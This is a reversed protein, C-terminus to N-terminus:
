SSAAIPPLTRTTERIKKSSFVMNLIGIIHAAAKATQPKEGTACALLKVNPTPRPLARAWRRDIPRWSIPNHNGLYRPPGGRWSYIPAALIPCTRVSRGALIRIMRAKEEPCDFTAISLWYGSNGFPGYDEILRSLKDERHRDCKECTIRLVHLKGVIDRFIIAGDRPM